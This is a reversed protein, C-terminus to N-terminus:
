KVMTLKQRLVRGQSRLEAIYNGNVARDPNWTASYYGPAASAIRRSWIKRGEVNYVLIEFPGARDLEVHFVTNNRSPEAALALSMPTAAKASVGTPSQVIIRLKFDESYSGLTFRVVVTDVRPVSPTASVRGLVLPGFVSYTLPTIPLFQAAGSQGGADFTITYNLDSGPTVVVSDPSTIFPSRTIIFYSDSTDTVIHGAADRVVVQVKGMASSMIPVKWAYVSPNGTSDWILNWHANDISYFLSCATIGVSDYADWTITQTSTAPWTEDGNPTRLLLYPPTQDQIAFAGSVATAGNPKADYAGVRIVVAAAVRSAPVNWALSGATIATGTVKNLFSYTSGNDYSVWISCLVVAQNDAATWTITQSSGSGITSPGGSLGVGSVTPPTLDPMSITFVASTGSGKNSAADKARVQIRASSSAPGTVTWAFTSDTGSAATIPTWSTGGISYYLSCASVAVNDAAQWKITHVTGTQWDNGSAPLSVSVTPVIVDVISFVSSEATDANSNRDVAIIRIKCQVAAVNAPVTWAKGGSFSAGTVATDGIAIWSSGNNLSYDLHFRALATEDTGSWQISQSTGTGWAAGANPSSVAGMVPPVPDAIKYEDAGIDWTGTRTEGDIDAAFFSSLNMGADIAQTDTGKLHLDRPTGTSDVFAVTTSNKSGTGTLGSAKDSINYGEENFTCTFPTGCKQLINNRCNQSNGGTQGIGINCGYITNNYITSQGYGLIGYGGDTGRFDYIINNYVGFNTENYPYIGIAGTGAAAANATDARIICQEVKCGATGEFYLGINSIGAAMSNLYQIGELYLYNNRIQIGYSGDIDRIRYASNSWVGNHRQSVGVQTTASPTFVRIYNTTSTTYGSWNFSTIADEGDGYCAIHLTYNGAVLDYTNLHAANAAGAVVSSLTNFARKISTVSQGSVNAPTAGTATTVTYVTGSSRGSIYCKTGGGYTIEDGVGINNPQAVTLTATGSAITITPSGSKLDGTNTGVSFFVDTAAFLMAPFALIM